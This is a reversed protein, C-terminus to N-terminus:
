GAQIPPVMALKDQDSLVTESYNEALVVTGNLIVLLPEEAPVNLQDLVTQVTAGTPAEWAENASVKDDSRFRSLAGGLTLNIFVSRQWGWVSFLRM